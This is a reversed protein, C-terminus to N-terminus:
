QDRSALGAPAHGIANRIAAALALASEETLELAVRAAPGLEPNLFFVQDCLPLAERMMQRRADDLSAICNDYAACYGEACPTHVNRKDSESALRVDCGQLTMFVPKGLRRALRMDAYPNNNLQPLDDWFLLSRGFYCHLVDYNLASAYGWAKRRALELQASSFPHGLVLDARYGLGPPYNCVLDSRLGARREARSLAPEKQCAKADTSGSETLM